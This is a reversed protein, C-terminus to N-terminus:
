CKMSEKDWLGWGKSLLDGNKAILVLRAFQPPFKTYYGSCTHKYNVTVDREILTPPITEAQLEYLGNQLATNDKKIWTDSKVGRYRRHWIRESLIPVFPPVPIIEQVLTGREYLTSPSGETFITPVTPLSAANIYRLEVEPARQNALNEPIGPILPRTLFATSGAQKVSFYQQSSQLTFPATGEDCSVFLGGE